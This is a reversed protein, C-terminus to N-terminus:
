GVGATPRAQRARRMPLVLPVIALFPFGLIRFAEIFSLLAAQQQVM